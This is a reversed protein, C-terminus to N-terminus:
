IPLRPRSDDADIGGLCPKLDLEGLLLVPLYHFHDFM